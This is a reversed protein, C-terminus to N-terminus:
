GLMKINKKDYEKIRKPDIELIGALEEESMKAAM